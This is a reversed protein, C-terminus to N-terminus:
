SRVRGNVFNRSFLFFFFSGSHHSTPTGARTFLDTTPSQITRKLTTPLAFWLFLINEYKYTHVRGPKANVRRVDTITFSYSDNENLQKNRRGSSNM